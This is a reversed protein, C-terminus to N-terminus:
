RSRAGFGVSRFGGSGPAGAPARRMECSPGFFRLMGPKRSTTRQECHPLGTDDSTPNSVRHGFHPVSRWVHECHTDNSGPLRNSHMSVRSVARMEGFFVRLEQVKKEGRVVTSRAAVVRSLREVVQELELPIASSESDSRCVTRSWRAAM